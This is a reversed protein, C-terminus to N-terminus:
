LLLILYVIHNDLTVTLACMLLQPYAQLCQCTGLVVICIMLKQRPVPTGLSQAPKPVDNDDAENAYEHSGIRM